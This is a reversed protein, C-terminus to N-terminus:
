RRRLTMYSSLFSTFVWWVARCPDIRKRTTKATLVQRRDDNTISTLQSWQVSQSLRANLNEGSSYRFCFFVRDLSCRVISTECRTELAIQLDFWSRRRRRERATTTITTAGRSADNWVNSVGLLSVVRSNRKNRGFFQRSLFPVRRFGDTINIM